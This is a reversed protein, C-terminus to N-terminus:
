PISIDQQVEVPLSQGERFAKQAAITSITNSLQNLFITLFNLEDVSKGESMALALAGIAALLEAEGTM